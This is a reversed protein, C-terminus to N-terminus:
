CGDVSLLKLLGSKRTGRGRSAESSTFRGFYRGLIYTGTRPTNRAITTDMAITTDLACPKATILADSSASVRKPDTM